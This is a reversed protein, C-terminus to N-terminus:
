MDLVEEFVDGLREALSRKRSKKKGMDYGRDSDAVPRSGQAEPQRRPSPTEAVLRDLEGRDLWVGRCRPCIDIEIGGRHTVDLVADICLPCNM